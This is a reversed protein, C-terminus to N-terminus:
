RRALSRGSTPQEASNPQAAARRVYEEVTTLKVPLAKQLESEVVDGEASRAGLAMGSGQKENMVAIVPGLWRLIPAPIRTVKFKKGTLQESLAVIDNPAVPSPGGLPVDRNHMRDDELALVCYDAVDSVSIWSVPATGVGFITARQEAFDWGLFSSLWIEMFNSPQLITWQMGSARVAREVERKYRVLPARETLNPSVSVYVFHSVGARRANHVLSIQADRDVARLSAGRGKSGMATATSIIAYAGICAASVTAASRLDGEVVEVGLQRIEPTRRSSPRVLARVAIHRAHLRKCIEVGLVGTAGVVLIMPRDLNKM